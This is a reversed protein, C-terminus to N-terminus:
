ETNDEMKGSEIDDKLKAQCAGGASVIYINAMCHMYIYEVTNTTKDAFNRSLECFQCKKAFM